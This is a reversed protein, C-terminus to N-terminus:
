RSGFYFLLLALAAKQYDLPWPDSGLLEPLGATAVVCLVVLAKLDGWLSSVAKRRRHGLWTSFGRVLCGVVYAAVIGLLSLARPELLRNEQYLYIGLVVFAAILLFRISHRPLFLPHRENEILGEAQIKKVIDPPLNIFRRSTFYHALAILLTEVWLVDLDRGLAVSRTVVGVIFLTLLARVSGVPLGLPPRKRPNEEYDPM